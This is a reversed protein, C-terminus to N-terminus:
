KDASELVAEPSGGLQRMVAEALGAGGDMTLTSALQQDLMSRYFKEERGGMLSEGALVDNAERMSKILMNVFLSEFAKAAEKLSEPNNPNQRIKSLEAQQMLADPSMGTIDM